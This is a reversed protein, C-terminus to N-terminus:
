KEGEANLHVYFEYSILRGHTARMDPQPIEDKNQAGYPKHQMADSGQPRKAVTVGRQVRTTHINSM